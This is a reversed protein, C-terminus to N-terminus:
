TKKCIYTKKFELVPAVDTALQEDVLRVDLRVLQADVRLLSV